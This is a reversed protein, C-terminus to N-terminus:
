RKTKSDGPGRMNSWPDVRVETAEKRTRDLTSKYERDIAEADMKKQRHEMVAPDDDKKMRQAFAAGTLAALVVTAGEAAFTLAVAKGIGSSSGTVIAIKGNLRRTM